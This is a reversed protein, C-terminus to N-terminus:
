HAAAKSSAVARVPTAPTSPRTLSPWDGQLVFGAWYYPSQWRPQKRISLQATRLAAAPSAGAFYQRYFEGMLEASAQDNVPWLTLILSRAGAHFFARSFGLMGEGRLDKGVATNCGNLVVLEADSQLAYLEPLRLMGDAPRGQADVQSLVLASELPRASDVTAHASVHIVQHGRLAGNLFLEKRARPGQWLTVAKAGGARVIHAIEVTSFFLPAFSPAGPEGPKSAVPTRAGGETDASAYLPDGVLAVKATGARISTRPQKRLLGLLSASPLQVLEFRSLLHGRGLNLAGFPVRALEADPVIVLRKSTLRDAFPGFLAQALAPSPSQPRVLLELIQARAPLVFMELERPGGILWAFSRKEGLSLEVLRTDDDLLAAVQAASLIEPQVLSAFAPSAARLRLDAELYQRNAAAREQESSTRLQALYSARRYLRREEALLQPNLGQQLQDRTANVLDLLTRARAQETARYAEHDFRRGPELEHRRALTEIWTEFLTQKSALYSARLQENPVRTRLGEIRAIAREAAEQAPALHSQDLHVRALSGLTDAAAADFRLSERLQLSRNLAQIASSSDGDGHLAIGLEHLASAEGRPEPLQRYAEAAQRLLQIAAARDGEANRALYSRGLYNDRDAQDLPSVVVLGAQDLLARAAAHDGLKLKVSALNLLSRGAEAQAGVSRLLSVSQEYALAAAALDGLSSYAVALNNMARGQQRARGASLRYSERHHTIALECEGCQCLLLGYNSLTAPLGFEPRPDQKWAEIAEVFHVRASEIEGLRWEATALGNLVEGLDARLTRSLPLAAAFAAKQEGYRKAASAADGSAILRALEQSGAPPPALSAQALLLLPLLAAAMM